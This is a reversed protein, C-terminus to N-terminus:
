AFEEEIYQVGTSESVVVPLKVGLKDLYHQALKKVHDSHNGQLKEIIDKNPDRIGDIQQKKIGLTDVMVPDSGDEAILFYGTVPDTQGDRALRGLCQEIVGSAWDLEGIVGTRCVYQLGDLGAGSRLSMILLPSEKSCFKKKAEEKQVATEQGTFLVPKLDQLKEMWIDYVAHHWGFLVVSEGSEILMRVFEAVYPAKAIGTAQRMLADFQGSATFADGREGSSVIIKALEVASGKMKDLAGSDCDIYHPVTTLPPIERGVDKRTRRLMICKERVFSGFAKPNTISDGICWERHFEEANGLCDKDLIRCVNYMESGYNYIPTGSLGLKFKVADSVLEAAYYKGSGIRRLEQIEDFIASRVYKSLTDAWGNLKHYNTIVVDPLEGTKKDALEYPKGVKIIHTKLKPAFKQLEDRWQRTLHTLTCVLAPRTAPDMLSCIASCTKGVGLDDALLLFGNKLYLQAAIKQYDRAPIALELKATSYKGDLIKELTLLKEEYATSGKELLTKHKPHITMPYRDMFWLLDRCNEPTNTLQLKGPITKDAKPFVRKMRLILHPEGEVMWIEGNLKVSGYKRM